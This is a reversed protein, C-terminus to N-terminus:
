REKKLLVPRYHGESHNIKFIGTEGDALERQLRLAVWGMTMRLNIELLPHLSFSNQTSHKSNASTVVMMDVGLPGRYWTPLEAENLLQTLHSRVDDLLTPSLYRSLRSVKETETAVLNGAYVGGDTTEFLSLGEYRVQGNEAWFEMAFDCVKNTYLPEVEVGGQLRLTRRIWTYDKENLPLNRIPHLGRGSGSWPAKLMATNGFLGIACLVDAESECWTSEGTLLQSRFPAPWAKRLRELLLVATQRSAKTRYDAIQAATPLLAEPVGRQQLQRVALPSWGWPLIIDQEIHWWDPFDRLDSALLRASAPPTYNPDNSALALDNEPNFLLVRM